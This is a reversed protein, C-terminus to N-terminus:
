RRQRPRMGGVINRVTFSTIVTPIGANPNGESHLLILDDVAADALLATRLNDISTQWANVEAGNIAGTEDINDEDVGPMYLRGRFSRGALGTQKTIILAIAPPAYAAVAHTGAETGTDDWVNFPPGGQNEVVHTPGLLWSNDYRPALGDRLLNAIRGVDAQTLNAAHRMALSVSSRSSAGGSANTLTLTWNACDNPIVLPM